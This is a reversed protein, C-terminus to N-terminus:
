IHLYLIYMHKSTPTPGVLGNVGRHTVDYGLWPSTRIARCRAFCASMLIPGWPAARRATGPSTTRGVSTGLDPYSNTIAGGRSTSRLCLLSSSTPDPPPMRRAALGAHAKPLRHRLAKSVVFSRHRLRNSRKSSQRSSQNTQQSKLGCTHTQESLILCRSVEAPSCQRSDVITLSQARNRCSTNCRPYKRSDAVELAYAIITSQPRASSEFLSTDM